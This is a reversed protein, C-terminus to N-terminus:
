CSTREFDPQWGGGRLFAHLQTEANKVRSAAAYANKASHEAWIM